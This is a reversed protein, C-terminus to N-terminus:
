QEVLLITIQHSPERIETGPYYIAVEYIGTKQLRGTAYFMGYANTRIEGAFKWTACGCHERYYIRVTQGGMPQSFQDTLIGKLTIDQTANAPNPNLNFHVQTLYSTTIPYGQGMWANIGDIMNYVKTFGHSSLIGAAMTSRMGCFCYVIIPHNKHEALENIREELEAHPILLAKRIHGEDFEARTRVDLIVIDPDVGSTIAWYATKATIDTYSVAQATPTQLLSCIVLTGALLALLHKPIM